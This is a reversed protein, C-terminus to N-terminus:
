NAAAEYEDLFVGAPGVEGYRDMFEGAEDGQISCSRGTAKFTILVSTGGGWWEVRYHDGDHAVFHRM